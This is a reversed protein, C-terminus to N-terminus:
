EGVASLGRNPGALRRGVAVAVKGMEEVLPALEEATLAQPGDCLATEPHPHVDIMVGDAGVAAAALALPHV